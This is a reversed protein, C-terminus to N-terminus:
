HLSLGADKAKGPGGRPRFILRAALEQRVRGYGGRAFDSRFPLPGWDPHVESPHLRGLAKASPHCRGRTLLLARLRATLKLEVLEKALAQMLAADGGKV